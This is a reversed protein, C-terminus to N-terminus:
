LCQYEQTTATIGNLMPLLKDILALITTMPAWENFQYKYIGKDDFHDSPRALKYALQFIPPQYPFNQLYM